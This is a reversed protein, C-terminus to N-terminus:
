DKMKFYGYSRAEGGYGNTRIGDLNDQSLEVNMTGIFMYAVMLLVFAVVIGTLIGMFKRVPHGVNLTTGIGSEDGYRQSAPFSSGCDHWLIRGLQFLSVVPFGM